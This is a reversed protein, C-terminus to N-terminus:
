ISADILTGEFRDISSIKQKAKYHIISKSEIQNESSGM